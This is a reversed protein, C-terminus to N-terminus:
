FITGSHYSVYASIPYETSYGSACSVFPGHQIFPFFIFLFFYFDMGASTKKLVHFRYDPLGISM